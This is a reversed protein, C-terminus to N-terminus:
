IGLALKEFNLYVLKINKINKGQKLFVLLIKGKPPERLPVRLDM